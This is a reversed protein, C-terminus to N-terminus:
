FFGVSFIYRVQAMVDGAKVEQGETKEWSAIGGEEMTPSLAPMTLVEHRPYSAFSRVSTKVLAPTSIQSSAKYIELTKSMLGAMRAVRATSMHRISAIGAARLGTAESAVLRSVTRLM